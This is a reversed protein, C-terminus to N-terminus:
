KGDTGGYDSAFRQIPRARTTRAYPPLANRPWGCSPLSRDSFHGSREEARERNVQGVRRDIRKKRWLRIRYPNGTYDDAGARGLKATRLPLWWGGEATASGGVDLSAKPPPYALMPPPLPQRNNPLCQPSTREKSARTLCRLRRLY